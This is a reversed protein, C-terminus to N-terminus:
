PNRIAAAIWLGALALSLLGNWEAMSLGVLSWVVEDCLPVAAPATFDLLDAGSMSQLPTGACTSPGSWLKREVGSHYLALGAATFAAAAGAWCLAAATVAVAAVAIAAAAAHPWRQWICLECPQLDAGYQFAFAVLLLM